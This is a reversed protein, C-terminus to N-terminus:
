PTAATEWSGVTFLLDTECVKSINGGTSGDAEFTGAITIGLPDFCSPNYEGDLDMWSPFAAVFNVNDVFVSQTKRVYAHFGESFAGDDTIVEVYVEIDIAEQGEMPIRCVIADGEVYSIRLSVNTDARTEPYYIAERDREYLFPARLPMDGLYSLVLAGTFGQISGCSATLSPLLIASTDEDDSECEVNRTCALGSPACVCENCGDTAAFREGYTHGVGNYECDMGTEACSRETCVFGTETCDCFNCGDGAPVREGPECEPSADFMPGADISGADPAAGDVASGDANAADHEHGSDFASADSEGLDISSADSAGGDTSRVPDDSCAALTFAASLALASRLSFFPRCLTM